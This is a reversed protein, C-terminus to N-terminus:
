TAIQIPFSHNLRFDISALDDNDETDDDGPRPARLLPRRAGAFIEAVYRTRRHIHVRWSGSDIQSSTATCTCESKRTCRSHPSTMMLATLDVNAAARDADSIPEISHINARLESNTM